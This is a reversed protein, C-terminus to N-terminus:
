WCLRRAKESQFTLNCLCKQAELLSNLHENSTLETCDYKAFKILCDMLEESVFRDLNTKDRSMLKVFELCSM